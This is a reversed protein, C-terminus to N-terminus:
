KNLEFTGLSKNIADSIIKALIVVMQEIDKHSVVIDNINDNYVNKISQLLNLIDENNGLNEASQMIDMIDDIVINNSDFVDRIFTSAYILLPVGISVINKCLTKDFCKRKNGVGSGPCIGTNSIQISSGLRSVASACLSDVLIIHTPKVREVVGNIIEFSEIGTLGLVSPCVAMVKPYGRLGFTINIDHCVKSGLSDSSIHRNGLGVVLVRSSKTLKGLFSSIIDAVTDSIYNIQKTSLVIVDPLSLIEYTGVERGYRVSEIDNKIQYKEGTIGFDYESNEFPIEDGTEISIKSIIENILESDFRM